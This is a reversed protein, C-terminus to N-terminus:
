LEQPTRRPAQAVHELRQLLREEVGPPLEVPAERLGHYLAVTKTLSDLVVRCNACGDLHAELAQCLDQALDGDVYDNLQALLRRCEELSHAHGTM